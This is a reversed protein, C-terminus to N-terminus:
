EVICSINLKFLFCLWGSILIIDGREILSNGTNDSFLLRFFSTLQLWGHLCSFHVRRRSLFNAAHSGLWFLHKIVTKLSSGRSLCFNLVWFSFYFFEFFIFFERLFDDLHRFSLLRLHAVVSGWDQSCTLHLETIWRYFLSLLFLGLWAHFIFNLVWFLLLFSVCNMKSFLNPLFLTFQLHLFCVEFLLYWFFAFYFLSRFIYPRPDLAFGNFATLPLLSNM